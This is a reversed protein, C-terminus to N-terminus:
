HSAPASITHAEVSLRALFVAIDDLQEPIKLWHGEQEAGIYDRWEVKFGISALVHSAERGLEVDVYADDIGHGMLIPTQLFRGNTHQLESKLPELITELFPDHDSRTPSTSNGLDPSGNRTLIDQISTAFPLWTNAGVFGGLRESQSRKRYLLSWIAVAGGQSIGGLVLKESKGNLQQIEDELIHCIHTASTKIGAIQLDQRITPDTLSQAEFWSSMNEQFTANWEVPSSPFVWRWQPFQDQLNKGSSLASEFLEDAFEEGASGRGHLLVATHTHEDSPQVVHIPGFPNESASESISHTIYGDM